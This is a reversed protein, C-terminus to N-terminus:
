SQSMNTSLLYVLALFVLYIKLSVMGAALCRERDGQIASATLAIIPRDYHLSSRLQQTAEYGDMIPMQCDMIIIDPWSSTSTKKGAQNSTQLDSEATHHTTTSAGVSYSANKVYDIAEVGNCAAHVRKFGLRSLNTLVVKRNIENDEVFLIHLDSKQQLSLELKTPVTAIKATTITATTATAPASLGTAPELLESHTKELDEFPISVPALQLTVTARTGNGKSSELTVSGSMMEAM